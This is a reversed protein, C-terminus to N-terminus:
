SDPFLEEGSVLDVPVKVQGYKVEFHISIFEHRNPTRLMKKQMVLPFFPSGVKIVTHMVDSIKRKNVTM